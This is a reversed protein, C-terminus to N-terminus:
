HRARVPAPDGFRYSLRATVTSFTIDNEWHTAAAATGFFARGYGEKGLDVYNYELGAIWNGMAVELGAGLTWGIHYASERTTFVPLATLAAANNLVETSTARGVAAGGKGYALWPGFAYGLRLTKTAYWDIEDTRTAPGTGPFLVNAPYAVSDKMGSWTFAFENGFVWNGRQSMHGIHLGGVGGSIDNKLRGDFGVFGAGVFTAALGNAPYFADAEGWGYGIHGGVYLGSWIGTPNDPGFLMAAIPNGGSGFKYSLRAMASQVTVDVTSDLARTAPFIGPQTYRADGLDAYNYELGLIWNYTLAYAVGAGVTWGVHASTESAAPLIGPNNSTIKLDVEGYALGAKGYFLWQGAALGFRGTFTSLRDIDVTANTTTGAGFGNLGAFGLSVASGSLKGWTTTGELGFVFAGWQWNRGTHFGGAFGSDGIAYPGSELTVDFVGNADFSSWGGHVGIYGGAWSWAPAPAMAPAKRAMPIDAGHAAAVLCTSSLLAVILARM